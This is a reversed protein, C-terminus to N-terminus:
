YIKILDVPMQTLDQLEDYITFGISTLAKSFNDKDKMKFYRNYLSLTTELTTTLKLIYQMKEQIASNGPIDARVSSNDADLSNSGPLKVFEICKKSQKIMKALKTFGLENIILLSSIFKTNVKPNEYKFKLLESGELLFYDRGLTLKEIHWKLTASNIKTKFEIDKITVVPEGNYYKMVFEYPPNLKPQEKTQKFYCNVLTRQVDWALDDTFSKVLMLYGSETLITIGKPPIVELTRFEYMPSNRKIIHYDIGEIFRSKHINFNRRATGDARGHVTDIDKLTVVRQGKFEKIQMQKNNITISNM